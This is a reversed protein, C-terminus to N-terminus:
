SARVGRLVRNEPRRFINENNGKITGEHAWARHVIDKLTRLLDIDVEYPQGQYYWEGGINVGDGGSAPLDIKYFYTPLEVEHFVPQRIPRNDDTYGRVKYEKLRQVMVKKGTPVERIESQMVLNMQGQAAVAEKATKEAETTKEQSAALAKKLREIEATLRGVEEPPTIKAM